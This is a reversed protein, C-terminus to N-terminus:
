VIRHPKDLFIAQRVHVTVNEGAKVAGTAEVRFPKTWVVGLKEGNLRVEAIEKVEGLDVFLVQEPKGSFNFSNTYTATGSYYKVGEEPRKTWSTLEVLEAAEPGAGGRIM